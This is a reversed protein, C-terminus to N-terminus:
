CGAVSCGLWESVITALDNVDVLCDQNLDYQFFENAGCEDELITVPVNAPSEIFLPDGFSTVASNAATATLEGEGPGRLEEDQIATLTVTQPVGWNGTTFTLVNPDATFFPEAPAEVADTINIVVTGSGPVRNLVYELTGTAGGTMEELEPTGTVIVCGSDIDNVTVTIASQAASPNTIAASTVIAQFPFSEICDETGDDITAVTVTQPTEWNGVTFTLTHPNSGNLTFDSSGNAPDLLVSVNSAIPGISGDLAVVFSTSGNETVSVDPDTVTAVVAYGPNIGAHVDMIVEDFCLDTAGEIFFQINECDGPETIIAEFYHTFYGADTAALSGLVPLGTPENDENLPGENLSCLVFDEGEGTSSEAGAFVDVSASNVTIQMRVIVDEGPGAPNSISLRSGGSHVVGGSSAPAPSCAATGFEQEEVVTATAGGTVTLANLDAPNDFDLTVKIAGPLVRWSPAFEDNAFIPSAFVLLALGCLITMKKM